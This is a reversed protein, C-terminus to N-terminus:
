TNESVVEILLPLCVEENKVCVYDQQKVHDILILLSLLVIKVSGNSSKYAPYQRCYRGGGVRRYRSILKVM